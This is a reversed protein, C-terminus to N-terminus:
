NKLYTILFNIAYCLCCRRNTTFPFPPFIHMSSTKPLCLFACIFSYATKAPKLMMERSSVNKRVPKRTRIGKEVVDAEQVQVAIAAAFYVEFLFRCNPISGVQSFPSKRSQKTQCHEASYILKLFLFSDRNPDKEIM